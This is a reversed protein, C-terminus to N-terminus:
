YEDRRNFHGSAYQSGYMDGMSAGVFYGTIGGLAAGVVAKTGGFCLGLGGGLITGLITGTTAGAMGGAWSGAKRAAVDKTRHFGQGEQVDEYFASGIRYTDFIAAVPLGLYKAVTRTWPNGLIRSSIDIVEQVGTPCGKIGCIDEYLRTLDDKGPANDSSSSQRSSSVLSFPLLFLLIIKSITKLM